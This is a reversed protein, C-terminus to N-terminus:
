KVMNVAGIAVKDGAEPDKGKGVFRIGNAEPQLVTSPDVSPIDTPICCGARVGVM